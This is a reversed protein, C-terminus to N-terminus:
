SFQWFTHALGLSAVACIAALRNGALLRCLVFVNGLTVAGALVSVLNAAVAPETLFSLGRMLLFHLVHSRSLSTRDEFAGMLLRLQFEGGDQWVVGPAMTLGYLGAGLGAAVLWGIM